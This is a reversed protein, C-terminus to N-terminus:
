GLLLFFGANYTSHLAIPAALNNTREQIYGFVLSPILVALACVPPHNIFHALVFLISSLVNALSFISWRQHLRKALFPQIFGRFLIEEIIPFLLVLSLLVSLNTSGTVGKTIYLWLWVPLPAILLFVFISDKFFTPM